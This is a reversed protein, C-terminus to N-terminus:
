FFIADALKQWSSVHRNIGDPYFNPVRSKIVYFLATKAKDYNAFTKSSIYTQLHKFVHYNILTLHPSPLVEIHLESLKRLIIQSINPRANDQLLISDEKSVLVPQQQLM